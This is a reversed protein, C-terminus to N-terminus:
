ETGLSPLRAEGSVYSVKEQDKNVRGKSKKTSELCKKEAQSLITVEEQLRQALGTRHPQKDIKM